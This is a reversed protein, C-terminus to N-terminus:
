FMGKIKNKLWKSGFLAILALILYASIQILLKNITQPKRQETIKTKEASRYSTTDKVIQTAISKTSDKKVTKETTKIANEIVTTRLIIQRGATDPASYDTITVRSSDIRTIISELITGTKVSLSSSDRHSMQLDATKTTETAKKVTSCSSLLFFVALLTIFQKM